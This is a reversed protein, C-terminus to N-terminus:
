LGAAGSMTGRAGRETGGLNVKGRPPPATLFICWKSKKKKTLSHMMSKPIWLTSQSEIEPSLTAIGTPSSNTDQIETSCSDGGGTSSVPKLSSQLRELESEGPLQFRWPLLPLTKRVRQSHSGQAKLQCHLSCGLWTHLPSATTFSAGNHIWFPM